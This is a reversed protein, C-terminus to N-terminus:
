IMGLGSLALCRNPRGKLAPHFLAAIRPRQGRSETYTVLAKKLQDALGLYDGFVALTNADAKEIPTGTFPPLRPGVLLVPGCRLYGAM